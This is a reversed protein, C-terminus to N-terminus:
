HTFFFCPQTPSKAIIFTITVHDFVVDQAQTQIQGRNFVNNM